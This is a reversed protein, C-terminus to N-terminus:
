RMIILPCTLPRERMKAKVIKESNELRMQAMKATTGLNEIGLLYNDEPFQQVWIHPIKDKPYLAGKCFQTIETDQSSASPDFELDCKFQAIQRYNKETKTYITKYKAAQAAFGGTSSRWRACDERAKIWCQGLAIIVLAVCVIKILSFCSPVYHHVRQMGPTFLVRM